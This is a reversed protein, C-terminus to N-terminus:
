VGILGLGEVVFVGFGTDGYCYMPRFTPPGRHCAPSGMHLTHITAQDGFKCPNYYHAKSIILYVPLHTYIYIYIYYYDDDDDDYVYLYIYYTLRQLKPVLSTAQFDHKNLLSRSTSCVQLLTGVKRTSNLLQPIKNPAECFIM